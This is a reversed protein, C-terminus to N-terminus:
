KLTTGTGWFFKLADDIRARWSGWSHGEHVEQYQLKYGKELLVDRMQRNSALLNFGSISAEYTGVDLYFVVPQKSNNRILNIMSDFFASSQGACNGFVEPHNFAMFASILGGLSAGMVARSEPSRKTRYREDITPVVESVFFNEFASNMNYESNRNVPPVMVVIVPPISGQNILYDVVNNIKALNLYDQGDHVYLAPFRDTTQNYGPPLYVTVTRTNRLINSTLSFRETTGHAINSYFEVEPPPVYNQMWFQSNPGFGGPMTRPNLPDLIWATGNLVLKYDLRADLEFERSLYFLDTEAVQTLSDVTPTWANMDGALAAKSAPGQYLFIARGFDPKTTQELLPVDQQETCALFEDVLKSKAARDAAANVRQLFEDFPPCPSAMTEM